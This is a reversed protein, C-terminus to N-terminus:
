VGAQRRYNDWYPDKLWEGFSQDVESRLYTRYRRQGRTLKPPKPRTEFAVERGKQTVYFTRSDQHCFSPSKGEIMLEAKCLELLGPLDTHGDSAEFFNRYSDFQNPDTIGLTHHLLHYFPMVVPDILGGQEKGNELKETENMM